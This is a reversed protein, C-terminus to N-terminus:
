CREDIFLWGSRPSMRTPWIEVFIRKKDVFPLMGEVISHPYQPTGLRGRSKGCERCIGFGVDSRKQHAFKYSKIKDTKYIIVMKSHNVFGNKGVIEHYSLDGDLMEVVVTDCFSLGAKTAAENIITYHEPKSWVFIFVCNEEKKSRKKKVHSKSNESNKVKSKSHVSSKRKNKMKKKSDVINKRRGRSGAFGKKGGHRSEFEDDDNTLTNEEIDNIFDSSLKNDNDNDDNKVNETKNDNGGEIKEDLKKQLNRKRGSEHIPPKLVTRFFLFIEYLDEASIANNELPPDMIIAETEVPVSQKIENVGIADFYLFRTEDFRRQMEEQSVIEIFNPMDDLQSEDPPNRTMFKIRQNPWEEFGGGLRNIQTSQAFIEDNIGKKQRKRPKKDDIGDDYENYEDIDESFEYPDVKSEYEIDDKEKEEDNQGLNIWVEAPVNETTALNRLLREDIQEETFLHSDVLSQRYKFIAEVDAPPTNSLVYSLYYGYDIKKNSYKIVEDRKGGKRNM